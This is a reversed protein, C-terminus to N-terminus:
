KRNCNETFAKFHCLPSILACNPIKNINTVGRGIPLLGSNGSTTVIPFVCIRIEYMWDLAEHIEPLGNAPWLLCVFHQLRWYRCHVKKMFSYWCWASWTISLIILCRTKKESLCTVSYFTLWLFRVSFDLARVINAYCYM